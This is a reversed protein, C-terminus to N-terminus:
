SQIYTNQTIDTYNLMLFVRGFYKVNTRRCGTYIYLRYTCSESTTMFSDCVDFYMQPTFGYKTELVLLVFTFYGCLCLFCLLNWKQHFVFPNQYCCICSMSSYSTTWLVCVCDFASCSQALLPLIPPVLQGALEAASTM